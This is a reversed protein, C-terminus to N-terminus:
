QTSDLPFSEKYQLIRTSPDTCEYLHAHKRSHMGYLLPLPGDVFKQPLDVHNGDYIGGRLTFEIKDM